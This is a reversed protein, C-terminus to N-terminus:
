QACLIQLATLKTNTAVEVIENMDDLDKSSIEYRVNLDFMEHFIKLLEDIREKQFLSIYDLKYAINLWRQGNGEVSRQAMIEFERVKTEFAEKM